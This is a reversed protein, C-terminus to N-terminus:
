ISALDCHLSFSNIWHCLESEGINFVIHIWDISVGVGGNHPILWDVCGEDLLIPILQEIDIDLVDGNSFVVLGERKKLPLDDAETLVVHGHVESGGEILGVHKSKQDLLTIFEIDMELVVQKVGVTEEFILVLV